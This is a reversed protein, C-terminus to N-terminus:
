EIVVKSVGSASILDNLMLTQNTKMTVDFALQVEVEGKEPSSLYVQSVNVHYKALITFVEALQGPTDVTRIKILEQKGGLITLEIKSLYLLTLMVLGTAVFAPFYLGAGVALGIGAVTWLSAATTLGRISAGERMITGAGLFGIGSIVQAAIRGPDYGRSAADMLERFGYASVLMILTSGVAVLIHTRFGAPRGHSEREIGILGGLVLALVLRISIELHSVGLYHYRRLYIMEIHYCISNALNTIGSTKRDENQYSM